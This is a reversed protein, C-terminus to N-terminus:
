QWCRVGFCTWGPSWALALSGAPPLALTKFLKGTASDWVNLKYLSGVAAVLKSDPSWAVARIEGSSKKDQWLETLTAADWMELGASGGSALRAGAPNWAVAWTWTTFGGRLLRPSAAHNLDWVWAAARRSGAALKTGDPSWALAPVQDLQSLTLTSPDENRADWIKVTGDAGASAIQAGDARWSVCNISGLHGRFDRIVKGGAPVDRIAIRGDGRTASALRTGDANWAVSFVENHNDWFSTLNTGTAADCFNVSNDQGGTALQRGDPSWAIALTNVEANMPLTWLERSTAIDWCKFFYNRGAAALRTGDNNWSLSLVQSGAKFTRM